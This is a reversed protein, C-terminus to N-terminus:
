YIPEFRKKILEFIYNEIKHYKHSLIKKGRREKTATTPDM